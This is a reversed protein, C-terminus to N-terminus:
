IASRRRWSLLQTLYNQFPHVITPNIAWIFRSPCVCVPRLLVTVAIDQKVVLPSLSFYTAGKVRSCESHGSSLPTKAMM